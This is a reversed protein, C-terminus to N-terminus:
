VQSKLLDLRPSCVESRARRVCVSRLQGALTQDQLFGMQGDPTCYHRCQKEKRKKEKKRLVSPSWLFKNLRPKTFLKTSQTIKFMNHILSLQVLRKELIEKSLKERLTECRM